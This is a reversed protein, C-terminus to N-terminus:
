FFSLRNVNTQPLKDYSGDYQGGARIPHTRIRGNQNFVLAFGALAPFLRAHEWFFILILRSPNYFDFNHKEHEIFCVSETHKEHLM